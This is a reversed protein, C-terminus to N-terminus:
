CARLTPVSALERHPCRGALKVSGLRHVWATTSTATIASTTASLRTACGRRGPWAGPEFWDALRDYYRWKLKQEDSGELEDLGDQKAMDRTSDDM